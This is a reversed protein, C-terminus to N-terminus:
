PASWEAIRVVEHLGLKHYMREGPGEAVAFLGLRQDAAAARETLRAVAASAIGRCRWEPCVFINKLRLVSGAPAASVGGCGRGRHRILFCQMYGTGAKRRELEALDEPAVDHGDPARDLARHLAQKERWDAASLVPSLEVDPSGVLPGAAVLGLEERRLAGARALERELGTAPGTLYLRLRGGVGAAARAATEVWAAPDSGGAGPDVRVVVCGGPSHELGPLVCLTAGSLREIKAAAEFYRADSEVLDARLSGSAIV